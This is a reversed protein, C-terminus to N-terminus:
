AAVPPQRAHDYPQFFEIRIGTTPWTITMTARTGRCLRQVLQLGTGLELPEHCDTVGSETWNYDVGKDGYSWDVSIQGQKTKLAGYQVANVVLEHMIMAANQARPGPLELPPGSLHIRPSRPDVYDILAGNIIDRLPISEWNAATLLSHAQALASIRGEIIQKYRHVDGASSMRIIGHIVALLNNARHNVQTLCEQVIRDHEVKSVSM